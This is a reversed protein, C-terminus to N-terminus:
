RTARRPLWQGFSALADAETIGEAQQAVDAPVWEPFPLERVVHRGM